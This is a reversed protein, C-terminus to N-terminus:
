ICFPNLHILAPHVCRHFFLAFWSPWAKKWLTLISPPLTSLLYLCTLFMDLLSQVSVRWTPALFEVWFDLLVFALSLWASGHQALSLWVSLNPYSKPFTQDLYLPPFPVFLCFTFILLFFFFLKLFEGLSQRTLTYQLIAFVIRRKILFEINIILTINM